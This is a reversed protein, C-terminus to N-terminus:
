KGDTEKLLEILKEKSDSQRLLRRFMDEKLNKFVVEMARLHMQDQGQPSLLLFVAYVPKHDLANFEIGKDSLGITGVLTKIRPHKCHPAAVGRGFGTTGTKERTILASIVEDVADPEVAGVRGLSQVLERIVGEREVSELPVIIADTQIFERFKM